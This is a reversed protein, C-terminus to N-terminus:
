PTMLWAWLAFMVAVLVLVVVFAPQSWPSAERIAYGPDDTPSPAEPLGDEGVRLGAIVGKGRSRSLLLVLAVELALAISLFLTTTRRVDAIRARETQRNKPGGDAALRLLEPTPVCGLRAGGVGCFGPQDQARWVYARAVDEVAHPTLVVVANAPVSDSVAGRFFGDADAVLAVEGGFARGREDFISFYAASRPSPSTLMLSTRDLTPVIAGMQGPLDGSKRATDGEHTVELSVRVPVGLPVIELLALGDSGSRVTGKEPEGSVTAFSVEAADAAKGGRSAAVELIVKFPPAVVGHRVRAKVELDPLSHRSPTSFSWRDGVFARESAGEELVGDFLVVAGETILVREDAGLPPEFAVDATGRESTQVALTSGDSRTLEAASRRAESVDARETVLELRVARWPATGTAHVRASPVPRERGPGVLLALVCGTAAFPLALAVARVVSGGRM